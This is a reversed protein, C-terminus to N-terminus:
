ELEKKVFGERSKLDNLEKLAIKKVDNEQLSNFMVVGDIRKVFEPRFYSKIASM